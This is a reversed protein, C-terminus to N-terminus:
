FRILSRIWRMGPDRHMREHWILRFSISPSNPLPRVELGAISALREAARRPVCIVLDTEAIIWPISLFYPTRLTTMTPVVGLERLVEDPLLRNGEPYMMIAQPSAAIRELINGRKSLAPHGRRALCAYDDRFLERYHFDPPLDEDADLACDLGGSELDSFTNSGFPVVDLCVRPADRAVQAALRGLVTVSGYDTAAIRFTRRATAPDFGGGEFMLGIAALADAVRPKLAEARATLAYGKSTRVLLPDGLARRLRAVARSAAPQSLGLMEGSQTVSATDLLAALMRLTKLDIQDLQADPERMNLM